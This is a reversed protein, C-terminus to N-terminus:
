PAPLISVRDSAVVDRALALLDATGAFGDRGLLMARAAVLTRRECVARRAVDDIREFDEVHSIGILRRIMEAGAFGVADAFM